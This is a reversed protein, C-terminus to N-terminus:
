LLYCILMLLTADAAFILTILLTAAVAYCRLSAAAFILMLLLTDHLLMAFLMAATIM